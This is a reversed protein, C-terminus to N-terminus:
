RYVRFITSLFVLASTTVDARDIHLDNAPISNDLNSAGAHVSREEIWRSLGGFQLVLVLSQDRDPRVKRRTRVEFGSRVDVGREATRGDM